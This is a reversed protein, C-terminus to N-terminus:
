GRSKNRRAKALGKKRREMVEDKSLRHEECHILDFSHSHEYNEPTKVVFPEGCVLCNSKWVLLNISAGDRKRTYPETGTFKFIMGKKNIVPEINM